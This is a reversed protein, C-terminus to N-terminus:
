NFSNNSEDNEIESDNDQDGSISVSISSEQNGTINITNNRENSENSNGGKLEDTLWRVGEVGGLVILTDAIAAGAQMWPTEQAAEWNSIEIGIESPKSGNQLALIATEDNSAIAKRTAIKEKNKQILKYSVCSSNLAITCILFSILSITKTKM